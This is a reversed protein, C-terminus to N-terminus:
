VKVVSGKTPGHAVQVVYSSVIYLMEDLSFLHGNQGFKHGSRSDLSDEHIYRSQVLSLHRTLLTTVM